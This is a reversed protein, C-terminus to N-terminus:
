LKRLLINSSGSLLTININTIGQEQMSTNNELKYKIYYKNTGNSTNEDVFSLRYNNRFGGTANATGINSNRSILFADRWLEITIREEFSYCCL